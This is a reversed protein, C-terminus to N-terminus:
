RFAPIDLLQVARVPFRNGKNGPDQSFVENSWLVFAPAYVRGADYVLEAESCWASNTLVM